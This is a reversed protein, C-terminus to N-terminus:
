FQADMLHQNVRKLWAATTDVKNKSQCLVVLLLSNSRCVIFYKKGNWAVIQRDDAQKVLYTKDNIVIMAPKKEPM